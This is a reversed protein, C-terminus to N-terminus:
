RRIEIGSYPPPPEYAPPPDEPINRSPRRVDLPIGRSERFENLAALADPERLDARRARTLGLADLDSSPVSSSRSRAPMEVNIIERTTWAATKENSVSAAVSEPLSDSVRRTSIVQVPRQSGRSAPRRFRSVMSRLLRVFSTGEPDIRNVPELGAYAYANIGGQGFPSLEDPSHFRMIVPSYPRYGNGLLYLDSVVEQVQGAFGARSVLREGDHGFPTFKSRSTDGSTGKVLPSGLLDTGLLADPAQFSTTTDM